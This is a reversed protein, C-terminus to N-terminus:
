QVLATAEPACRLAGLNLVGMRDPVELTFRCTGDQWSLAAEHRGPSVRELFFRGDSTVPALLTEGGDRVRLASRQPVSVDMGREVDIRAMVARIPRVDFQAVAGRKHPPGLLQEVKGVDYDMPIDSARIKLRNAYRPQLSPVLLDGHSDTSGVEQNELYGRVDPVGVRMLGYSSEVPRTLFGRGGILVAGGAAALSGTRGQATQEVQGEYRGYRTQWQLNAAGRARPAGTDAEVRYGYGPGAPLSRQAGLSAGVGDSSARTGFQALTRAGASWSLLAQSSFVASGQQSTVTATLLLALRSGLGVDVRATVSGVRGADRRRAGNVEIGLGLRDAPRIGAYGSAELLARDATLDLIATSYRPTTGRFRLGASSKRDYWAWSLAASAGAEGHEVSAAAEADIEGLVTGLAVSPGLSARDLSAELRLGGTVAETVGLRHRALAVPRGYGLSSRTFDERLFGLHYAYDSLGPALLGASYFSRMDFSQERGYADRLVTRVSNTGTTLPINALDLTGPGVAQRRVLAGNVYVELTSPSAAFATTAPRASQVYYPDLSFDRALGLGGVVASSGLGGLAVSADGGSWRRLREPEELSVTSLGRVPTGQPPASVGSMVLLRGDGAGLEAALSPHLDTGTQVSYNLFASPGSAEIMGAPRAAGLDLRERGLLDPGATLDLQLAREDVAFALQPALSSLAVHEQGHLVSRRGAIGRLGSAELDAVMVWVEGQDLVVIADGRDVGNVRLALDARAPGSPASAATAPAIAVSVVAVLAALTVEPRV